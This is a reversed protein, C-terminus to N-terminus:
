REGIAECISAGGGYRFGIALKTDALAEEKKDYNISINVIIKDKDAAALIASLFRDATADTVTMNFSM